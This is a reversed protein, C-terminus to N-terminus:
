LTEKTESGPEGTKVRLDVLGPALMAGQADIVEVDPALAGLDHGHSVDAIKGDAVLLAGPGDWGSAPDVIRAHIFATPRASM